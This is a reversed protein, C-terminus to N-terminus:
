VHPKCVIEEKEIVVRVACCKDKGEGMGLNLPILPVSRKTGWARRASSSNSRSQIYREARIHLENSDSKPYVHRRNKLFYEKFLM